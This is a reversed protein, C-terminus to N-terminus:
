EVLAELNQALTVTDTTMTHNGFLVVGSTANARFYALTSFSEPNDNYMGQLLRQDDLWAVGSAYQNGDAYHAAILQRYVKKPIIKGTEAAIIVKALDTVSMYVSGSGLLSSLLAQSLDDPQYSQDNESLYGQAVPMKASLADFNRTHTLKLPALITQDLAAAFPKKTVKRIIGALLAYNANTYIFSHDGTSGLQNLNWDLATKESTLIQEPTLEDMQIGSRHDLLQRITIDRSHDIDPYFKALKTTLSLRHDAILRGIVLATLYKEVSALPFMTAGNNALKRTHDAEGVGGTYVIRGKKILAVSGRFDTADILKRVHRRLQAQPVPRATIKSAQRQHQIWGMTVGGAVVLVGLVALIILWRRKRTMKMISRQSHSLRMLRIIHKPEPLKKAVLLVVFTFFVPLQTRSSMFKPNLVYAELVHIAAIMILITIVDQWGGVTYGIITLPILSIIAGAVPILSLLFVMIALSPINPMKMFLLTITTIVTNVVAIFIQAEMVVGFTNIFKLAFYRLDKFYWGFPSDLFLQGFAPLSDLEITFFFSLIFSLVLTLGMAGINGAYELVTSLGTKLQETLNLSKTSQLVWQMVQNNAFADSNYFDQVSNFLTITQHIIAPVYHVAAYILGLIVLIYVPVVIVFPRVHVHRQVAHVLRSVLLAFIFTLLIDSMISRAFWLVLFVSFLVVTRRVPVNNIFKEYASM